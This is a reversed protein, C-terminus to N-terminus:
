TKLQFLRNGHLVTRRSLNYNRPKDLSNLKMIRDVLGLWIFGTWVSPTHIPHQLMYTPRPSLFFAGTLEENKLEENHLQRWDGSSFIVYYPAEHNCEWWNNKNTQKHKQRSLGL